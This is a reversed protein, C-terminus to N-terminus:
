KKDKGLRNKKKKIEDTIFLILYLIFILKVYLYNNPIRSELNTINSHEILQIYIILKFGFFVLIFFTLRRLFSLYQKDLLYKKLM